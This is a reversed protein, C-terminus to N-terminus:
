RNGGSVAVAPAAPRRVTRHQEVYALGAARTDAPHVIRWGGPVEAFAPWLCHETDANALVVYRGDADEFPNSM